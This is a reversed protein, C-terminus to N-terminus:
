RISSLRFVKFIASVPATSFLEVSLESMRLSRVFPFIPEILLTFITVFGLYLIAEFQQIRKPKNGKEQTIM